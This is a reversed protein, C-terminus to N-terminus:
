VQRSEWLQRERFGAIMWQVMPLMADVARAADRLIAASLRAPEGQVAPCLAGLSCLGERSPMATLAAKMGLSTVWGHYQQLTQVYANSAASRDGDVMLRLMTFFFELGRLLWQLMCAGSPDHLQCPSTSHINADLEAQLFVRLTRRGTLDAEVVSKVYNYNKEFDGLVLKVATGMVSLAERYRAAAELFAPMDVDEIASDSSRVAAKFGADALVGFLTQDALPEAERVEGDAGPEGAAPGEAAAPQQVAAAAPGKSAKKRGLWSMCGKKRREKSCRYALVGCLLYPWLEVAM